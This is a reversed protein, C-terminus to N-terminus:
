RAESGVLEDIWAEVIRQALDGAESLTMPVTPPDRDLEVHRAETGVALVSNATHKFRRVETRSAGRRVVGGIGGSARDGLVADLAAYLRHWTPPLALFALALRVGTDRDALDVIPEWSPIPPPKPVTGDPYTVVGAAYVRVRATALGARAFAHPRRSGDPLLEMVPGMDLRPDSGLKAVVLGRLRDVLEVAAEYVAMRDGTEEFRDATLEWGNPGRAVRIGDTFHEALRELDHDDGRLAVSWRRPPTAEADAM